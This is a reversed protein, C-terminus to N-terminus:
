NISLYTHFMKLGTKLKDHVYTIIILTATFSETLLSCIFCYFFLLLIFNALTNRHM